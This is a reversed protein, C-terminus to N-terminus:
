RSNFIPVVVCARKQYYILILYLFVPVVVSGAFSTQSTTRTRILDRGAGFITRM